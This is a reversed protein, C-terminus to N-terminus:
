IYYFSIRRNMTALWKDMRRVMNIWLALIVYALLVLGYYPTMM